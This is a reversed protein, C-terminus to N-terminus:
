SMRAFRTQLDSPVIVYLRALAWISARVVTLVFPLKVDISQYQATSVRTVLLVFATSHALHHFVHAGTQVHLTLAYTLRLKAIQGLGALKVYM